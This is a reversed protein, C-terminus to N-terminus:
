YKGTRVFLHILHIKITDRISRAEHQDKKYKRIFKKNCKTCGWKAIECRQQASEQHSLLHKNFNFQYYFLKGCYECLYKPTMLDLRKEFHCTREHKDKGDKRKFKKLCKSCEENATDQHSLFHRKLNFKRNFVKDCLPCFYTKVTDMEKELHFTVPVSRM